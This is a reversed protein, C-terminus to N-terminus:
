NFTLFWVDLYKFSQLTLMYKMVQMAAQLAAAAAVASSSSSSSSDHVNSVPPGLQANVIIM